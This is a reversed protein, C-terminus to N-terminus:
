NFREDRNYEKFSINDKGDATQVWVPRNIYNISSPSQFSQFLVLDNNINNGRPISILKCRRFVLQSLQFYEAHFSKIFQDYDSEGILHDNLKQRKTAASIGVEQIHPLSIYQLFNIDQEFSLAGFFEPLIYDDDELFFVYEGCSKNYVLSYLTSLDDHSHYLYKIDCSDCFIEQIDRSDNNVIIEYEYDCPSKLVSNISRTFLDPRNHTLMCISLKM